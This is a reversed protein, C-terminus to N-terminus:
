WAYSLEMILQVFTICPQTAQLKRYFDKINPSSIWNLQM